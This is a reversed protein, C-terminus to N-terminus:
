YKGFHLVSDVDGSELHIVLGHHRSHIAVAVLDLLLHQRQRTVLQHGPQLVQVDVRVREVGEVGRLVGGLQLGYVWVEVLLQILAELWATALALRGLSLAHFVLALSLKAGEAQLRVEVLAQIVYDAVLIPVAVM